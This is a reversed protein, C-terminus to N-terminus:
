IYTQHCYINHSMPQGPIFLSVEALTLDFLILCIKNTLFDRFFELVHKIKEIVNISHTSCRAYWDGHNVLWVGVM